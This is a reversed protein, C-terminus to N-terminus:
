ERGLYFIENDFSKCLTHNGGCAIFDINSPVDLKHPTIIDNGVEGNGLQGMSNEGFCYLEGDESLCFTYSNGCSIEKIPPVEVKQPVHTNNIKKKGFLTRKFGLVGVGLQGNSNSGFCFVNGGNDLCASHSKGCSVSVINYLNPILTPFSIPHSDHNSHGHAGYPSNGWSYVEGESSISITYLTSCIISSSVRTVMKIVFFYFLIIDEM